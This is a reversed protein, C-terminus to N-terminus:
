FPGQVLVTGVLVSEVLVSTLVAGSGFPGLWFPGQGFHGRVLVAGSGFLGQGLRCSNREGMLVIAIIGTRSLVRGNTHNWFCIHIFKPKNFMAM